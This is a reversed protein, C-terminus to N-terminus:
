SGPRTRDYVQEGGSVLSFVQVYDDSIQDWRLDATLWYLMQAYVHARILWLELFWREGMAGAGEVGQALYSGSANQNAESFYRAVADQMATLKGARTIATNMYARIVDGHIDPQPFVSAPMFNEHLGYGDGAWTSIRQHPTWGPPPEEMPKMVALPLPPFDKLSVSKILPYGAQALDSSYDPTYDDSM